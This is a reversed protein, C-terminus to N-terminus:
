ATEPMLLLPDVAPADPPGGRWLARCGDLAIQGEILARLALPYLRHEAQLVRDALAAETDDPRVPVVAQAIIPGADLEATVLHVTAGHVKVGAALARRHTDLGSFAPLLSPHINVMRGAHRAVFGESLIRMYGALVIWDLALDNLCASLQADQAARDLGRTLPVIRVPLGLARASAVAPIDDRHAIVAAVTVPWNQSQIARVIAEMNSGRGSVLIALKRSPTAPVTAPEPMQM